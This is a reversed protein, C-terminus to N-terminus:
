VTFIIKANVIERARNAINNMRQVWLMRNEAKLQDTIDENEVLQKILTDYM